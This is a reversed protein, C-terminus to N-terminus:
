SGQQAPSSYWVRCGNVGLPYDRSIETDLESQMFAQDVDLGLKCAIAPVHRNSSTSAVPAFMDFCDVREEQSYGKAVLSTTARKLMGHDDGKWKLRWKSDM